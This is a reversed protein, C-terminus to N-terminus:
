KFTTFFTTIKFSIPWKTVQDSPWETVRDSPWETQDDPWWTMQDDPWGIMWDDLWGTMWHEWWGTMKLMVVFPRVVDPSGPGSWLCYNFPDLLHPTSPAKLRRRQRNHNTISWNKIIRRLFDYFTDIRRCWWQLLNKFGHIHSKCFICIFSWQM